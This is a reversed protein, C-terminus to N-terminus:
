AANAGAKAEILATIASVSHIKAADLENVRISFERELRSILSLVCLSDADLEKFFDADSTLQDQPINLTSAALAKVKELLVTHDM